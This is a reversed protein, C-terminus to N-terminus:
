RVAVAQQNAATQSGRHQCHRNGLNIASRSAQAAFAAVESQETDGSRRDFDKTDRRDVSWRMVM